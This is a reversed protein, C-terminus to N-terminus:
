TPEQLEITWRRPDQYVVVEILTDRNDANLDHEDLLVMGGCARLMAVMVSRSLTVSNESQTMVHQGPWIQSGTM